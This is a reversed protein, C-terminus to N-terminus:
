WWTQSGGVTDIGTKWPTVAIDQALIIEGSFALDVVYQKGRDGGETTLKAWFGDPDAGISIGKDGTLTSVVFSLPVTDQVMMDVVIPSSAFPPIVFGEINGAFVGGAIKFTLDEVALDFTVATNLPKSGSASARLGYVPEPYSQGQACNLRFTVRTLMHEFVLKSGKSLITNSLSGYVSNSVMVDVNGKSLDYTVTGVASPTAVPHYGVFTVVSDDEPYGLGTNVRMGSNDRVSVTLSRDFINHPAFVYGISVPTDSWNDVPARTEGFSAPGSMNLVIERSQPQTDYDREACGGFAFISAALAAAPIIVRNKMAKRQKM